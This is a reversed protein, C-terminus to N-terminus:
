PATNMGSETTPRGSTTQIGAAYASSPMGSPKTPVIKRRERRLSAIVSGRIPIALSRVFDRSPRRLGNM